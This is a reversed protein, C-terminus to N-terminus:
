ELKSRKRIKKAVVCLVDFHNVALIRCMNATLQVTRTRETDPLATRPRHSYRKWNSAPLPVGQVFTCASYAWNMHASYLAEAQFQSTYDVSIQRRSWGEYGTKDKGM